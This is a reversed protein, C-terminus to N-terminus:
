CCCRKMQTRQLDQICVYTAHKVGVEYLEHDPKNGRWELDQKLYQDIKAADEALYTSKGFLGDKSASGLSSAGLSGRSAGQLDRSAGLLAQFGNSAGPPAQLGSRSHKLHSFNPAASGEERASRDQFESM